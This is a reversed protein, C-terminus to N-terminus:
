RLHSCPHLKRIIYCEDEKVFDFRCRELWVIIDSSDKNPLMNINAVIPNWLNIDNIRELHDIILAKSKEVSSNDCALYDCYGNPVFFCAKPTVLITGEVSESERTNYDDGKVVSCSLLAFSFVIIYIFWSKM